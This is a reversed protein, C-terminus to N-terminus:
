FSSSQNEIKFSEEREFDVLNESQAIQNRLVKLFEETLTRRPRASSWAVVAGSSFEPELPLFRIQPDDAIIGDICLAAAGNRVVLSANYLLNYTGVIHLQEFPFNLWGSMQSRILRQQPVYLPIGVLDSALLGNKGVFRDRPALIGWRNRYPLVLSDFDTLDVPLNFLAFDCEGMRLSRAAEQANASVLHIRVNLHNNQFAQVAAAIWSSARTEGACIVIDGVLNHTSMMEMKTKDMLSLISQAQQCLFEGKETLELRRTTRDFLTQGLEEELEAIQRSLAPQTIFLKKAAKTFSKEQAVEVFYRLSKIDM